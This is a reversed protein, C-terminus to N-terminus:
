IGWQRQPPPCDPSQVELVNKMLGQERSPRWEESPRNDKEQWLVLTVCRVSLVAAEESGMWPNRQFNIDAWWWGRLFVFCFSLFIEPKTLLTIPFPIQSFGESPLTFGSLVTNYCNQEIHVSPFSDHENVSNSKTVYVKYLGGRIVKQMPSDQTWFQGRETPLLIGIAVEPVLNGSSRLMQVAAPNPALGLLSLFGTFYTCVRIGNGLSQNRPILTQKGMEGKWKRHSLWGRDFIVVVRFICWKLILESRNMKSVWSQDIYWKIGQFLYYPRSHTSKSQLNLLLYLLGGGCVCVGVGGGWCGLFCFERGM